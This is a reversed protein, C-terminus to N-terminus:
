CSTEALALEGCRVNSDKRDEAAAIMAATEEAATEISICPAQWDISSADLERNLIAMQPPPAVQNNHDSM